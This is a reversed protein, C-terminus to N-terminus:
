RRDKRLTAHTTDLTQKLQQVCQTCWGMTLATPHYSHGCNTCPHQQAM